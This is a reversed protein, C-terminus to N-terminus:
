THRSSSSVGSMRASNRSSYKGRFPQGVSSCRASSDADISNTSRTAASTSSGVPYCRGSQRPSEPETIRVPRALQAIKPPSNRLRGGVNQKYVRTLPRIHGKYVSPSVGLGNTRATPARRSRAEPGRAVARPLLRAAAIRHPEAAARRRPQPPTLGRHRSGRSRSRPLNRRGATGHPAPHSEFPCGRPRRGGCYAGCRATDGALWQVSATRPASPSAWRLALLTTRSDFIRTM